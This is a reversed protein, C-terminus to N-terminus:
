EALADVGAVDTVGAGATAAGVVGGVVGGAGDM